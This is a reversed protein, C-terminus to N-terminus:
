NYMQQKILEIDNKTKENVELEKSIKTYAHMATTHDRGGLEQGIYPYSSKLEERMLYMIIQRPVVLESKRSPGIVSEVSIDYFTAIINIIEKPTLSNKVPKAAVTNVINKIEEPNPFIKHLQKYAIIRNLVGELERINNQINNVIYSTINEELVFNRELCKKELIAIRTEVDPNTIDAIMGWEFRSTLRKELTPIAKPPRDSSLIIQKNQQHLENFTHFFAEQTGDKGAIFQIDDVILVDVSRYVKQVKHAEGKRVSDIFENTFKECTTYLVKSGAHTKIIENGIAQLLHTKGLGVGGYIFLPNYAGGPKQAVAQAAAYALENGAGVVFTEFKYKLNLGNKNIKEQKEEFPTKEYFFDTNKNTKTKEEIKLKTDEKIKPNVLYEIHRIKKETINQLSKIIYNHYKKELWNKTFANPVGIIIENKNNEAVFTGKFWTTFNAKSLLLELEGLVAQWLQQNTM